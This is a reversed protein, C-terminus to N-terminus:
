TPPLLLQVTFFFLILSCYTTCDYYNSRFNYPCIWLNGVDQNGFIINENNNDFCLCEKGSCINKFSNDSTQAKYDEGYSELNLLPDETIYPVAPYTLVGEKIITGAPRADAANVTILVGIILIM